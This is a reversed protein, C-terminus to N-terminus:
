DVCVHQFLCLYVKAGLEAGPVVKEWIPKPADVTKEFHDTIKALSGTTADLHGAIGNVGAATGEVDPGVKTLIDQGTKLTAAGQALLATTSAIPPQLATLDTKLVALSETAVGATKEVSSATTQIAAGAQTLTGAAATVLQNTQKVQYQTTVAIDQIKVVAKDVEALTGCPVAHGNVKLGCPRNVIVLTDRAAATVEGLSGLASRAAVQTQHSDWAFYGAAGAVVLLCLAGAAREAIQAARDWDM